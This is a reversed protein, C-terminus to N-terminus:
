KVMQRNKGSRVPIKMQGNYIKDVIVDRNVIIGYHGIVYRFWSLDEAQLRRMDARHTNFCGTFWWANCISRNPIFGKSITNKLVLLGYFMSIKM